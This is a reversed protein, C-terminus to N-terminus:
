RYTTNEQGAEHTYTLWQGGAPTRAKLERGVAHVLERLGIARVARQKLEVLRAGVAGVGCQFEPVGVRSRLEGDTHANSEEGHDGHEELSYHVRFTTGARSSEITCVPHKQNQIRM